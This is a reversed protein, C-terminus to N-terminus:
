ATNSMYLFCRAEKFAVTSSSTSLARLASPSSYILVSRAAIFGLSTHPAKRTPHLSITPLIRINPKPHRFPCLTYTFHLVNTVFNQSRRLHSLPPKYNMLSSAIPSHQHRKRLRRSNGSVRGVVGRWWRGASMYSNMSIFDSISISSVMKRKDQLDTIVFRFFSFLPVM